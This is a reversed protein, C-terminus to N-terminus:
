FIYKDGLYILIGGTRRTGYIIPIGLNTGVKGDVISGKSDQFEKVQTSNNTEETVLSEAENVIDEVGDAVVSDIIDGLTNKFANGLLNFDFM